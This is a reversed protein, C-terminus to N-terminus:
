VYGQRLWPTNGHEVAAGHKGGGGRRKSRRGGGRRGGIGIRRQALQEVLEHLLIEVIRGEGDRRQTQIGAGTGMLFALKVIDREGADRAVLLDGGALKATKGREVAGRQLVRVREVIVHHHIAQLIAIGG